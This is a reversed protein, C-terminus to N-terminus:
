RPPVVGGASEKGKRGVGRAVAVCGTSKLRESLSRGVVVGAVPDIREKEVGRAAVVRSNPERSQFLVRRAEVVGGNSGKGIHRKTRIEGVSRSDASSGDDVGAILDAQSVSRDRHDFS